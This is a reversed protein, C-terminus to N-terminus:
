IFKEKFNLAINILTAAFAYHKNFKNYVKNRAIENIFANYAFLADLKGEKTLPAVNADEVLNNIILLRSLADLIFNAKNLKYHSFTSATFHSPYFPPYFLTLCLSTSIPLSTL